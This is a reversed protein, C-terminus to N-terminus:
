PVDSVCKMHTHTLFPVRLNHKTEAIQKLPYSIEESWKLIRSVVCSLDSFDIFLTVANKSSCWVLSDCAIWVVSFISQNVGRKPRLNVIVYKHNRQTRFLLVLIVFLHMMFCFQLLLIGSFSWCWDIILQTFVWIDNALLHDSARISPETIFISLLDNSENSMNHCCFLVFWNKKFVVSFM